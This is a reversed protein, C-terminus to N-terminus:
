PLLEKRRAEKCEACCKSIPIPRNDDSRAFRGKTDFYVHLEASLNIEKGCWSLNSGVRRIHPKLFEKLKEPM